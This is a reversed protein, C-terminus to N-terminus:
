MREMYYVLTGNKYFFSYYHWGVYGGLRNKANLRAGVLWAYKVESFANEYYWGKEPTGVEVVASFPDFLNAKLMNTIQQSYSTPPPGYDAKELEEKTPAQMCGATVLLVAMLKRM